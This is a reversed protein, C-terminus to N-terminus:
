SLSYIIPAMRVLANNDLNPIVVKTTRLKITTIEIM